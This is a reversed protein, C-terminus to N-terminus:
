NHNRSVLEKAQELMRADLVNGAGNRSNRDTFGRHQMYRRKAQESGCHVQFFEPTEPSAVFEIDKFGNAKRDAEMEQLQHCTFGMADSVIRTQCQEGATMRSSPRNIRKAWVGPEIEILGDQASMMTEFDVSVLDGTDERRFEYQESM